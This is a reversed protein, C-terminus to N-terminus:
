PTSQMSAGTLPAGEKSMLMLSGTQAAGTSLLILQTTYGGGTVFHPFDVAPQPPTAEDHPPTTTMLLEGRENYRGRLGAVGVESPSSIRLIGRFPSPLQSFLENAFKAIQGGAAIDISKSLGTPTGDVNM